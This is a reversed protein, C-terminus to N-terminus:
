RSHNDYCKGYTLSNLHITNSVSYTGGRLNIVVKSDITNAVELAKEITQFPAKLSGDADDSGNPSVFLFKALVIDNEAALVTSFSTLLLCAIIIASLLRKM